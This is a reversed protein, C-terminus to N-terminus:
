LIALAEMANKHLLEIIKLRMNQGSESNFYYTPHERQELLTQIAIGIEKVYVTVAEEKTCIVNGLVHNVDNGKREKSVNETKM